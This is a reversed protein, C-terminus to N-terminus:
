ANVSLWWALGLVISKVETAANYFYPQGSDTDAYVQWAGAEGLLPPGEEEAMRTAVSRVVVQHEHRRSRAQQLRKRM